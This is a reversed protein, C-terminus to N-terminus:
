VPHGGEEGFATEFSCRTRTSLKEFLMALTKGQFRKKIKGNKSEEKVKKALKLLYLIEDPTYDLLTLLSRGLLSVSM